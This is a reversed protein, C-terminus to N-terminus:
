HNVIGKALINGRRMLLNLLIFPLAAREFGPRM